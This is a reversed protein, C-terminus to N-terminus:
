SYIIRWFSVATPPDKNESVPSDVESTAAAGGDSHVKEFHVQLEAPGPLSAMCMPCIFGQM